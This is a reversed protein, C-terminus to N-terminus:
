PFQVAQQQFQAQIGVRYLFDTNSSNSQHIIYSGEGVNQTAMRPLGEEKLVDEIPQIIESPLAAVSLRWAMGVAAIIDSDQMELESASLNATFSVAWGSVRAHMPGANLGMQVM